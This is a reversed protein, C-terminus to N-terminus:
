EHRLAEVPEVETARRAPLYCAAAAVAAFVVASGAFATPDAPHVGITLSVAATLAFLPNRRLLRVAYRLDGGWGSFM